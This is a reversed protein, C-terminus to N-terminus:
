TFSLRSAKTASTRAWRSPEVLLPHNADDRELIGGLDKAPPKKCSCHGEDQHQKPRQLLLSREWKSPCPPFISSSRQKLVQFSATDCAKQHSGRLPASEKAWVAEGTLQVPHNADDRELIGGLDKAPPKKCSCHGEDQHQKPRQLLLSREWKSPCPPFISSSRKWRKFHLQTVYIYIYLITYSISIIRINIQSQEHYTKTQEPPLMATQCQHLPDPDASSWRTKCPQAAAGQRCWGPAVSVHQVTDTSWRSVKKSM